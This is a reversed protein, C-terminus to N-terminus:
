IGNRGIMLLGFGYAKEPGIGHKLGKYFAEVDTIRLVGEFPVGAIVFEDRDKSCSIISEKGAEHVELLSFGNKEAQRCLWESREAWSRLLVRRSNKGESKVKKTPCALLSFRLVQDQRLVTQLMSIDQMKDCSFGNTEIREWKPESASQVYMILKQDTKIIRYLLQAEERSCDFARMITRHMDQCNRLSQRVSPSSIHLTLRSLYM